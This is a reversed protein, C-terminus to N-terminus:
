QISYCCILSSIDANGASFVHIYCQSNSSQSHYTFQFDLFAQTVSNPCAGLSSSLSQIDGVAQIDLIQMTLCESRLQQIPDIASPLQYIQNYFMLAQRRGINDGSNQSVCGITHAEPYGSLPHNEFVGNLNYGITAYVGDGEGSWEMLDCQYTYMIFNQTGDTIM